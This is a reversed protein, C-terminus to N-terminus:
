GRGHSARNHRRGRLTIMLKRLVDGDDRRLTLAFIQHKEMINSAKPPRSAYCTWCADDSAKLGNSGGFANKLDDKRLSDFSDFSGSRGIVEDSASQFRQGLGIVGGPSSRLGSGSVTPEM